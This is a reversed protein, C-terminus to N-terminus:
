RCARPCCQPTLLLLLLRVSCGLLGECLFGLACLLGLKHGATLAQLCTPHRSGKSTQWGNMANVQGAFLHLIMILQHYRLVLLLLPPQPLLLGPLM